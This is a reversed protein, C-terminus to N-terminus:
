VELERDGFSMFGEEHLQQMACRVVYYALSLNWDGCQSGEYKIFYDEAVMKMWSPRNTEIGNEKCTFYQPLIMGIANDLANMSYNHKM